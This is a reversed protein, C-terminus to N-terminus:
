LIIILGHMVNNKRNVLILINLIGIDKINSRILGHLLGSGMLSIKRLNGMMPIVMLGHLIEMEKFWYVKM